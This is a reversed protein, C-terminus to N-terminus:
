PTCVETEYPSPPHAAKLGSKQHLRRQYGSNSGADFHKKRWITDKSLTLEIKSHVKPAGTTALSKQLMQDMQSVDGPLTHVPAAGDNKTM